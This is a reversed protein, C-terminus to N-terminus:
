AASEGRGNTPNRHYDSELKGLVTQHVIRRFDNIKEKPTEFLIRNTLIVVSVGNEMDMWLSTGTYGLHGFSKDSFANGTVPGNVSPTDFGSTWTSNGKTLAKRLLSNSFVDIEEKGLFLKMIKECFLLVREMNGFLGAHGAVGGMVRCNDDNVIGCVPKNSRPHWATAVCKDPGRDVNKTYLLGRKIGFSEAIRNQWFVDLNMGTKNEVICGLLIYGLDSYETISGPLGHPKEQLIHNLVAEKMLKHNDAELLENYARHAPLGSCHSLLHSLTIKEQEKNIPVSLLSGLREQWEVVKTQLLHLISTATVIPKTLSALDFLTKEHVYYKKEIPETYGGYLVTQESKGSHDLSCVGVAAGSFLKNKLGEEIYSQIMEKFQVAMNKVYILLNKIVTHPFPKQTPTTDLKKNDISFGL